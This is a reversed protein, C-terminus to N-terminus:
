CIVFPILPYNYKSDNLNFFDKDIVNINTMLLEFMEDNVYSNQVPSYRIIKLISHSYASSLEECFSKTVQSQNTFFVNKTVCVNYASAPIVSFGTIPYKSHEIFCSITPREVDQINVTNEFLKVLAAGIFSIKEGYFIHHENLNIIREGFDISCLSKDNTFINKITRLLVKAESFYEDWLQFVQIDSTDLSNINLVNTIKEISKKAKRKYDTNESNQAIYILNELTIDEPSIIYDKPKSEIYQFGKVLNNFIDVAIDLHEEDLTASLVMAVLEILYDCSLGKHLFIKKNTLTTETHIHINKKDVGINILENQILEPICTSTAWLSGNNFGDSNLQIAEKYMTGITGSYILGKIRDNKKYPPLCLDNKDSILKNKNPKWGIIRTRFIDFLENAAKKELGHRGVLQLTLIRDILERKVKDRYNNSNIRNNIDAIIKKENIESILSMDNMQIFLETMKIRLETEKVMKNEPIQDNTQTIYDTYVKYLIYSRKHLVSKKIIM